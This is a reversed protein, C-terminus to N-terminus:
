DKLCKNVEHLQSYGWIISLSQFESESSGSLGSHGCVLHMDCCAHCPKGTQSPYLHALLHESPSCEQSFKFRAPCKKLYPHDALQIHSLCLHLLAGVTPSSCHGSMFPTPRGTSLSGYDLRAWETVKLLGPGGLDCGRQWLDAECQGLPGTSWSECEGCGLNGPLTLTAGARFSQSPLNPVTPLTHSGRVWQGRSRKCFCDQGTRWRSRPM